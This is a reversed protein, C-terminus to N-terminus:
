KYDIFHGRFKVHMMSGLFLLVIVVVWFYITYQYHEVFYWSPKGLLASRYGEVIYYLPNIRMINQIFQPLRDPAWLIPTLYLLMRMIAQIFMQVDRVITTLTSTILSLAFLFALSAFMYYPLQVIELTVPSGSFQLIIFIIVLLMLHQYFKALIVYSPIASMPFSMKSMMNIRTYISKSSQTIAPNVFFWVVIGALMWELFPVGDISHNKRIGFGFVFWYVAIQIMPNIIEWLIGLYNNKNASKVEYAALRQILYFSNIQEKIVTFMSKM